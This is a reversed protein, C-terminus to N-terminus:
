GSGATLGRPKTKTRMMPLEIGKRALVRLDTIHADLM